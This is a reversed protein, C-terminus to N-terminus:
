SVRGAMKEYLDRWRNAFSEWVDVQRELRFSVIAWLSAIGVWILANWEGQVVFVLVAFLHSVTVLGARFGFSTVFKM